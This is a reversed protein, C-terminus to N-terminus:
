YIEGDMTEAVEGVASGQYKQRFDDPIGQNNLWLRFMPAFEQNCSEELASRLDAYGAERGRETALMHALGARMPGEGCADELAVFFLPAKALAIRRPGAADSITIGSLPTETAAKSAEDYRRLYETVRQRRFDPGHRAEDIVIAAYEPLGEGMGVEAVDSLYMAEGFWERALARSVLELFPDSGTGLALAAPNVLVGAPFAVAAPGSEDSLRGRLEASEVVHTAAINKDLPGFDKELVEWMSDIQQAGVSPDDRLPQTTWFVTSSSKRQAPWAAYKGAVVYTSMMTADLQFRHEAEDGANKQGKPVGRALVLYDSPVRVTFESSKPANPNSSLVHKPPLLEPFWGRSGLHFSSEGITIHVGSDEPTRLAYEISLQRKQQRKWSPDLPIRLADPRGPQEEAPLNEATAAQGDVEVRTDRRGFTREPPVNADVFSLDATGSNEVTYLARVHLEAPQGPVFQVERSEKLIRYGPALPLACSSACLTFLVVFAAGLSRSSDRNL